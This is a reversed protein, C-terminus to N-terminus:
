VLLILGASNATIGTVASTAGTGAAGVLVVAEVGSGTTNDGSNGTTGNNDWQLLLDPGTSSFTWLGTGTYAGRILAFSETAAAATGLLGTTRLGYNFGIATFTGTGSVDVIDGPGMGSILDIGSLLTGNIRGPLGTTSSIGAEHSFTQGAATYRVRDAGSVVNITDAGTGGIITDSGSGGTINDGNTTGTISNVATSRGTIDAGFSGTVGGLDIYEFGTQAGGATFGLQVQDTTSTLDVLIGGSVVNAVVNLTDTGAGATLVDNSNRMIITDNGGGGTVTMATTGVRSGPGMILAGSVFSGANLVAVNTQLGGSAFTVNRVTTSVGATDTQTGAIGGALNITVPNANAVGAINTDVSLTFSTAAVTSSQNLNITEVGPLALTVTSGRVLNVTQTDTAVTPNAVAATQGFTIRSGSFAGITNSATSAQGVTLAVGAALSSATFSNTGGVTVTSLGTTSAFSQVANDSFGATVFMSEFGSIVPAVDAGSGTGAFTV